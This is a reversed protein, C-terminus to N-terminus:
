CTLTCAIRVARDARPRYLLLRPWFSDLLWRAACSCTRIVFRDNSWSQGFGRRHSSKGCQCGLFLRANSQEAFGSTPARAGCYQRFPECCYRSTRASRSIASTNSTWNWGSATSQSRAAAASRGIVRDDGTQRVHLADGFRRISGGRAPSSPRPGVLSMEGILVNFLQPLEDLSAARLFRGLPALRPDEGKPLKFNNQLFKAYLAPSSKLIQEADARM